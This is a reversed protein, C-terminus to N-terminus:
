NPPTFGRSLSGSKSFGSGSSRGPMSGSPMEFGGPMNGGSFGSNGSNSSRITSQTTVTVVRITQGLELGSKIEVYEDDSIGTTVEVESTKGDLVVVVYRKDGNVQIANIPIATVGKLEEINITCSVSMGVKINGDNKISVEVDFTSGSTSYTAISSIKSIKGNYVKSSDATLVIEVDQGLSINSIESESVSISVNVKSVKYVEIFNSSSAVEGENPISISSVVLDYPAKLYKGNSYRVLKTGKKVEEDEEVLVKDFTYSTSLSLKKIASAEIKGSSTLTKKITRASVEVDEIVTNSSSTDTNLGIKKGVFFCIGGTLILLFLIPLKKKIKKVIKKM